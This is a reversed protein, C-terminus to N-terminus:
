ARTEPKRMSLGLSLLSLVIAVWPLWKTMGGTDPAEQKDAAAPATAASAAAITTVSAPSKSGEPGTWEVRLSDAYTQYAPWEIRTDTKPNAAVFPFEVFRKPPLSGTWIAATIAKASDTVIELKWGPVDAFATVRVGAPVHLEVRTTPVDKENPVRLVYKEYAGATSTKPFVVAHAWSLTPVVAAVIAIAALAAVISRHPSYRLTGARRM